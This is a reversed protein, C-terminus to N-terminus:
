EVVLTTQTSLTLSNRLVYSTPSNGVTPASIAVTVLTGPTAGSLDSPTLTITANNVGLQTLLNQCYTNVQVSTAATSSSTTPRTALRAAEYAAAQIRAQIFILNTVEIMGLATTLLIPLCVALEVTATGLRSKRRASYPWPAERDPPRQRPDIMNPAM